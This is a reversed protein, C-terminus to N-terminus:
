AGGAAQIQNKLRYELLCDDLKLRM